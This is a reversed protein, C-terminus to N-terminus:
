LLEMAEEPRCLTIGLDAVIIEAAKRTEEDMGDDMLILHAPITGNQILWALGDVTHELEKANGTVRLVLTIQQNQGTRVPTLMIGRLLWILVALAVAIALALVVQVIM